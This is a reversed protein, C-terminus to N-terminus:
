EGHWCHSSFRSGALCHYMGVEGGADKAVGNASNYSTRKSMKGKYERVSLPSALPNLPSLYNPTVRNYHHEDDNLALLVLGLWGSGLRPKSEVVGWSTEKACGCGCGSDQSQDEVNM